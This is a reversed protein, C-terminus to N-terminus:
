PVGKSQSVMKPAVGGWNHIYPSQGDEPWQRADQRFSFLLALGKEEKKIEYYIVLDNPINYINHVSAGPKHLM